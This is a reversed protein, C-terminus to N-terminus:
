GLTAIYWFRRFLTKKRISFSNHHNFAGLATATRKEASFPRFVTLIKGLIKVIELLLHTVVSIFNDRYEVCLGQCNKDFFNKLIRKRKLSLASKTLRMNLFTYIYLSIEM